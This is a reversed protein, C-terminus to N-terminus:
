THARCGAQVGIACHHPQCYSSTCHKASTILPHALTDARWATISLGASRATCIQIAAYLTLAQTLQKAKCQTGRARTSICHLTYSNEHPAEAPQAKSDTKVM